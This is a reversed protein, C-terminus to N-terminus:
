LPNLRLLRGTPGVLIVSGDDGVPVVTQLPLTKSQTVLDGDDLDIAVLSADTHLLMDQQRTLIPKASINNRWVESGDIANVAVLGGDPLLPQIILRGLAVPKAILPQAADLYQWTDKGTTRNLAYLKGDLSAVIIESGQVTPAASVGGLTRSRWLPNGSATELLAYTGGTDVIFVDQQAIAPPNTIRSALDYRWRTFNSDVSHAFVLGNSGSLIALRTLPDYVAASGVSTELRAVSQVEGDRAELTFFRSGSHMFIQDGDRSPAYITELKSGLKIKWLLEGNDARIASVLNEPDEVIIVIDDLVTVSTIKQGRLLEIPTAWGLRYGIDAAPQPEILLGIDSPPPKQDAGSAWRNSTARDNASATEDTSSCAVGFCALAILAVWQVTKLYM